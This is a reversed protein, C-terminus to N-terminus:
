SLQDLFASWRKHDEVDATRATEGYDPQRINELAHLARDIGIIEDALTEAEERDLPASELRELREARETRLTEKASALLGRSEPPVGPVTRTEIVFEALPLEEGGVTVTEPLSVGVTASQRNVRRLLKERAADDM